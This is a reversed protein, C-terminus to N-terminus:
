AIIKWKSPDFSTTLFKILQFDNKGDVKPVQVNFKGGQIPRGERILEFQFNQDAIEDLSNISFQSICFYFTNNYIKVTIPSPFRQIKSNEDNGAVQDHTIKFKVGLKDYEYNEALGLLARVYYINNHRKDVKVKESVKAKLVESTKSKEWEISPSLNNFYTRMMSPSRQLGSKLQKYAEDIKSFLRKHDTSYDVYNDINRTNKYVIKFQSILLKEFEIQTPLNGNDKIVIFGGFGKSTRTGFNYLTFFDSFIQNELHDILEKFYSKIILKINSTFSFQKKLEGAKIGTNGFYCPYLKDIEQFEQGGTQISLTYNLSNPHQNNRWESKIDSESGRAIVFSDLRPKVDSARLTAGSYDSQFHIYPSQQSIYVIKQFM